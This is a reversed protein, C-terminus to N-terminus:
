GEVAPIPNLQWYQKHTYNSGDIRYWVNSRNKGDVVQEVKVETSNIRNFLYAKFTKVITFNATFM